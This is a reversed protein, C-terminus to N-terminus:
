VIKNKIVVADNEDLEVSVVKCGHNALVKSVYGSSCGFELVDKNESNLLILKGWQDNKEMTDVTLEEYKSM